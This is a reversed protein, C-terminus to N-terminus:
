ARVNTLRAKNELNLLHSQGKMGSLTTASLMKIPPLAKPDRVVIFGVYWM